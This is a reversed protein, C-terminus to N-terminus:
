NAAPLKKGCSFFIKKRALNNKIFAKGNQKKAPASQDKGSKGLINRAYTKEEKLHATYRAKSAGCRPIGQTAQPM